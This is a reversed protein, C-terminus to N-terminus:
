QVLRADLEDEIRVVLEGHFLRQAALLLCARALDDDHRESGGGRLLRDAGREGHARVPADQELDVADRDVPQLHGLREGGLELGAAIIEDQEALHRDVIVVM